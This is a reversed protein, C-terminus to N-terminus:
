KSVMALVQEMAKEPNAQVQTSVCLNIDFFCKGRDVAKIKKIKKFIFATSRPLHLRFWCGCMFCMRVYFLIILSIHISTACISVQLLCIRLLHLLAGPNIVHWACCMCDCCCFCTNGFGLQSRQRSGSRAQHVDPNYQSDCVHLCIFSIFRCVCVYAHVIERERECVCVCVCVCVCLGMWVCLCLYLMHVCFNRICM